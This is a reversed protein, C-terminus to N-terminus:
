SNDRLYKLVDCAVFKLSLCHASVRGISWTYNWQDISVIDLGVVGERDGAAEWSEVGNLM